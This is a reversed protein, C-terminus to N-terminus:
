AKVQAKESMKESNSEKNEKQSVDVDKALMQIAEQSITVTDTKIAMTSKQSNQNTQYASEAQDTRVKPNVNVPNSMVSNPSIQSISM